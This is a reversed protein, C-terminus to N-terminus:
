LGFERRVVGEIADVLHDALRRGVDASSTDARYLIGSSPVLGRQEPFVAYSHGSRNAATSAPIARVRVLEPYFHLMLSTETLSAHELEWGPFQGRFVEDLLDQSVQEWWNILCVKFEPKTGKLFLDSAAEAIFATNEFHGNLVCVGRWGQRALSGLVDGVVAQLTQGRVSTTGPFHEGGGSQPASRGAYWIPPAVVSGIRQAVIAAIALPIYGDVGLPLHPGHQEVSGVPLLVPAKGGIARGVEPWTLDVGM